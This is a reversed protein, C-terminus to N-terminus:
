RENRAVDLYRDIDEVARVIHKNAATRSLKLRRAVESVNLGEIRNLVFVRRRREPMDRLAQNILQLQENASLVREPSLVDGRQAFYLAELEYDYRSRVGMSRKEKLVLNRAIMWLFAGLDRIDSLDSREMLKHFAAQTIDEPDPPGNGFHTYILATIKESHSAYLNAVSNTPADGSTDASGEDARNRQQLQDLNRRPSVM